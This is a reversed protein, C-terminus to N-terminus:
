CIERALRQDSNTRPMGQESLARFSEMMTRQFMTGWSGLAFTTSMNQAFAVGSAYLSPILSSFSYSPPTSSGHHAQHDHPIHSLERSGGPPTSSSEDDGRPPQPTTNDDLPYPNTQSASEDITPLSTTRCPAAVLPGVRTAVLTASTAVDPAASAQPEIAVIDPNSSTKGFFDRIVNGLRGLEEVLASFKAIVSTISVIIAGVSILTALIIIIVRGENRRTANLETGSLADHGVVATTGPIPEM